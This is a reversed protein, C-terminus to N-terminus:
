HPTITGKDLLVAKVQIFDTGTIKGDGNIDAAKAAAGTLITKGLLVAKLQIFDTGTAKGDGNIDGTVVVTLEDMVEGNVLLQVKMGTGILGETVTEGNANVIRVSEENVGALLQEVTTGSAIKSIMGGDVTHVDSTIKAPPLKSGEDAVTDTAGCGHDCQATKTGDAEYTADGNSVYNTFSHKKAPIDVHTRSIEAGCDACYIVEDYSGDETCSEEDLNEKVAPNTQTHLCEGPLDNNIQEHEVTVDADAADVAEFYLIAVSEGAPIGDMSVYGITVSGEGMVVSYYEATVYLGVLTMKEPDWTVTFVGNTVDEEYIVPHMVVPKYDPDAEGCIDCIGELYNHGTAPIVEGAQTLKGCVTCYTDGTYGDETCSADKQDKVATNPHQCTITNGCKFCVKKGDTWDSYIHDCTNSPDAKGCDACEGDRYTHAGENFKEGCLDCIQWHKTDNHQWQGADNKHTCPPESGDPVFRFDVSVTGGTSVWGSGITGLKIVIYEGQKIQLTVTGSDGNVESREITTALAEGLASFHDFWFRWHDGSIQITVTGNQPAVFDYFYNGSPALDVSNGGDQLDKPNDITGEKIYASLRFTAPTSGANGIQLNTVAPITLSGTSDVSYTKGSIIVYANEGTITLYYGSGFGSLKYWVTEQAPIRVTDTPCDEYNLVHPNGRSGAPHEYFGTYSLNLIARASDGFSTGLLVTIEDGAKVPYSNRFGTIVVGNIRFVVSSSLSAESCYTDKCWLEKITTYLTGDQTAIFSYDTEKAINNDGLVLSIAPELATLTLQMSYAGGDVSVMEVTVVDGRTVTVKTANDQSATKIHPVYVGNVMIKVRKAQAYAYDYIANGASDKLGDFIFELRGSETVTYTYTHGSTLSNTGLSLAYEPDPNIQPDDAGCHSCKGDVYEHGTAPTVVVGCVTCTQPMTCTAEAGPTHGTERIAEGKEVLSGCVTCYTDGTYGPTTCTPDKQDRLQTTPHTCEESGSDAVFHFDVAVTGGTSVWGEGITALKIVISEGLKMDLTLTGSEDNMAARVVQSGIAAGSASLHDLWFKWNDGSVTITATGDRPAVFDYYYNESPALDVSNSGEQLNEPNGATGETIHATLAFTAPVNGSNGIQLWVPAPITLSGSAGVNYTYGSIVVYANAGTITLYGDGGFGSLKYWVASNAPIQVTNTPCESYHLTYPNGRTGAPHQYFGEYSLNLIANAAEKFSTGLLVTIEDGAKVEYSNRFSTIVNGNIRFVVSSSLSADTCYAGDCWLEKITTYLTGDKTAIFSYDTDKAIANDGLILVSAPELASLQLRISYSDADVATLEVTIVDGKSVTVKTANDQSTTKIHPVHVGNVMVKVRKAQAYTYDYITNGASDQLMDFIFELRGNEKATYTYTEGSVLSNTGLILTDTNEPVEPEANPDEKGCECRGDQYVHAAKDLEMGCTACIHWHHADSTQWQGANGDHACTIQKGCECTKHGDTWNGFTHEAKQLQEGCECTKWHHTDNYEWAGLNTHQCEPDPDPDPTTGGTSGFASLVPYASGMTWANGDGNLATVAAESAFWAADKGNTNGAVDAKASANYNGMGNMVTAGIKASGTLYYNNTITGSGGGIVAGVYATEGTVTGVNHCNTVTAGSYPLRGIVGGTYKKGTVTGANYCNTMTIGSNVHGVVGGVYQGSGTVTSESYCNSVTANSDVRGIVGGVYADGTCSGTITSSGTVACNEVTGSALRGVIGALYQYGTIKADKVTVNKVTGGSMYGILAGYSNNGTVTLNSVTYGQGDFIGTYNKTSNGIPTWEKGSLDINAMLKGNIGNNGDNVLQAFALLDDADQIEYYGEANASIQGAANTVVRSNLLDLKIGREEQVLVAPTKRANAAAAVLQEKSIEASSMTHTPVPSATAANSSGNVTVSTITAPWVDKGMEGIKVAEYRGVIQDYSIHYLESTEGTYTALYLNGDEGIVLSTFMHEMTEDGPFTCDLTTKTISYLADYGGGERAYIWFDWIYGDNDLLVLHETDYSNGDMDEVTESGYSAIGVLYSCMNGLDFGVTDLNLPDKPSLLYNYYISTVMEQNATSFTESYAMDWMPVGKASAASALVSGNKDIKRVMLAESTDMMYFANANPSWVASTMTAPLTKGPKWTDDAAMNWSYFQSNWNQDTVTGNITVQLLEVTVECTALKTPDLNSRATIIATGPAVATIVGNKDVTAVAENSSFWNVTRDIATWPQVNATLKATTGKIMNVSSKNLSVGSINATPKTWEDNRDTEDPIMLCSMEHWFDSYRTFEGSKPDIEYYYAMTIYSGVLVECHSNWCLKGTNPDYEMGMNGTTGGMDGYIPDKKTLFPDEMLLKPSGMTALTFSYVKGTGLENCYFTGDTDCALTNTSVGIKGIRTMEGTLKGITVLDNNETVAYIEGDDKNYAMDYLVTGLNVIFSTDTMDDEPMVFLDGKDTSAFVYHEAITAAYFHYDSYALRPTGVKYDYVFDKTFTTWHRQILDYAMMDPVGVEDGIQMELLYTSTNMAYDFVQVLFKKGNIKDLSFTYEAVEGKEIDQKAGTAALQRTGTKNYIGAAAIYQNDSATITMTNNLLDVSVGKLVPATNDIVFETSLTAGDGLADWDVKGNSDIYYEPVLTFEVSIEDDEAANKLSVNTELMMSNNQWGVLDNYYYAMNVAGTKQDLLVDGTTTNTITVRSQDANRIAAFGVGHFYDNSNMANREPMYVADPIVPNGGFSYHYNADKAYRVKFDNVRTVGTYPIREDEGTAFTTWRGYEFMSADTWNGYFGLVPISHRTGSVGEETTGTQAFLYGQIYTGNPYVSDLMEKTQETLRFSVSIEAEGGAPLTATIGSLEQLFVYADHPDIDGDGDVDAKAKNSLANTKGTVYDLLQQGDSASVAGDGNFDLGALKAPLVSEGNITWVVDVSIMETATDMYMQGESTFPAQIFFEASLDITKAIDHLNHITFTANYAGVRDPDDYLEVKVKGDAAGSNTGPAMTIFSDANIANQINALGAGQQLISYYSGEGALIPTATSMLLSQALHRVDMETKEDLDKEQIYQLLLAAMGAVQPAAMSTGSKIAYAGGSPNLGEISFINGGPATIEPKMELSGTVGWSSFDSMTYYQSGFVGKGIGDSIKMKGTFYRVNGQDDYVPTSKERIIAGQMKTLSVVPATGAFETMDLYIIGSVNNYIMVAIAGAEVALQAKETFNTEGRSCIAIKGPLVDAVADWDAKTGVGDIFIYEKEGALTTLSKMDNFMEEIYVIVEGDVTFYYGVMGDNELSGVCLSNTFAGPQSLTDMSVDTNYLYGGNAANGVWSGANGASISVVVGSKTLSTMIQELQDNSHHSRGPATSGLSLNISDAGLVIADEIAAFFDSDYPSGDKGFVKLALLQADPAVGQMLVNELAKGFTTGDKSVLWSNATAIGAVHSGHDGQDDNDHTVDYDFDRYNYGFAIKGNIYAQQPDIKANLDGAVKAIEQADLLDLSEIYAEKTMGKQEALKSLAYEFAVANLSQHDTDIGTDIVAIRMGAGTYGEAWVPGTGIQEGSTAMNPVVVGDETKCPLYQNELVVKKVGPLAQIQEIQGYQVNASIINAALTLNWVVDLDSGITREIQHVMNTQEKKLNDRYQIAGKNATIDMASYGADLTSKRSLVISVRVNDTDAYDAEDSIETRNSPTMGASVQNNDVQTFSVNSGHDHTSHGVAFVFTPLMEGALMALILMVSLIRHFISTHKM